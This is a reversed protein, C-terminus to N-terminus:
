DLQYKPRNECSVGQCQVSTFDIYVKVHRSIGGSGRSVRIIVRSEQSSRWYLREEIFYCWEVVGSGRSLWVGTQDRIDGCCMEVMAEGAGTAFPWGVVGGADSGDAGEFM